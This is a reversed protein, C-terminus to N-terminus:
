KQFWPTTLLHFCLKVRCIPFCSVVDVTLQAAWWPEHITHSESYRNPADSIPLTFQLMLLPLHTIKAIERSIWFEVTIEVYCCNRLVITSCTGYAPFTQLWIKRWEEQQPTITGKWDAYVVSSIDISCLQHRQFSYPSVKTSQCQVVQQIAVQQYLISCIESDHALIKPWPSQSEVQM